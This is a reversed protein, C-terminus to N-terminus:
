FRAIQSDEDQIGSAKRRVRQDPHTGSGAAPAAVSAEVFPLGGVMRLHVKKEPIACSEPVELMIWRDIYNLRVAFHQFIDSGAVADVPVGAQRALGALPLAFVPANQISAGALELTRGPYPTKATIKWGLRQAKATDVVTATAATDVVFPMPGSTSGKGSIAGPVFVLGDAIEITVM